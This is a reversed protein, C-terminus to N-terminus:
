YPSPAIPIDLRGLLMQTLGKHMHIISCSLINRSSRIPAMSCIIHKNGRCGPCGGIAARATVTCQRKVKGYSLYNLGLTSSHRWAQYWTYQNFRALHPLIGWWMPFMGLVHMADNVSFIWISFQYRYRMMHPGGILAIKFYRSFIPISRTFQLIVGGQKIQNFAIIQNEKPRGHHETKGIGMRWV